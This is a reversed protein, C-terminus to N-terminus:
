AARREDTAESALALGDEMACRLSEMARRRRTDFDHADAHDPHWMHGYDRDDWLWANGFDDLIIAGAGECKRCCYVSSHGDIIELVRWIDCFLPAKCCPCVQSAVHAVVDRLAISVEDGFTLPRKEGNVVLRGGTIKTPWDGFAFEVEHVKKPAERRVRHGFAALIPLRRGEYPFTAIRIM